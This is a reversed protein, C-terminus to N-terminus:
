PKGTEKIVKKSYIISAKRSLRKKTLYLATIILLIFLAFILLTSEAAANIDGVGSYVITYAANEFDFIRCGDGVVLFETENTEQVIGDASDTFSVSYLDSDMIERIKIEANAPVSLITISQGHGLLLVGKGNEDLVLTKEAPMIAGTAPVSGGILDLERGGFSEEASRLHVEFAFKKTMDAFDGTVVKSVMVNAIPFKHYTHNTDDGPGTPYRIVATNDFLGPTTVETSFSLTYVGQAEGSLDWTITRTDPDYVGGHSISGVDVDLGLPVTDTVITGLEGPQNSAVPVNDSFTKKFNALANSYSTGYGVKTFAWGRSAPTVYSKMLSDYSSTSFYGLPGYYTANNNHDMRITMLISKPYTKYFDDAHSKMLAWLDYGYPNLYGTTKGSPMQFDSIHIIVPVREELDSGTRPILSKVHTGYTPIGQGYSTSLGKMKNVAAALFIANDDSDQLPSVSFASVISARQADYQAETLFDTQMQINAYGPNYNNVTKYPDNAPTYTNMGLLAVRSNPYNSFIYESMNLMIDKAYLRASTGGSIAAAPTDSMSTSWDIVFLVDYKNLDGEAYFTEKINAATIEYNITDGQKVIVPHKPTGNDILDENVHANKSDPRGYIFYIITEEDVQAILATAGRDFTDVGSPPTGESYGKVIYGDIAPIVKSYPDGASLRSRTDAKGPIPNGNIDVYKEIIKV